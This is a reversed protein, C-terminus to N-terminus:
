PQSTVALLYRLIGVEQEPTLRAQPSMKRVIEPWRGPPVEAPPYLNHCGGCRAVYLRRGEELSAETAGPWRTGAWRIQEPRLAPVRGAFCTALAVACLAMAPLRLLSLARRASFTFGSSFGVM